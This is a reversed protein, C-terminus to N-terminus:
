GSHGMETWVMMGLAVFTNMLVLFFVLMCVLRWVNESDAIRDAAQECFPCFPKGARLPKRCRGCTLLIM